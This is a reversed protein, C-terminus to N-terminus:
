EFAGEILGRILFFIFSPSTNRFPQPGYNLSHSYM